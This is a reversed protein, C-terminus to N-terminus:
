NKPMKKIKSLMNSELFILRNKYVKGISSHGTIQTFDEHIRVIEQSATLLKLSTL